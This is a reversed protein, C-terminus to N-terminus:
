AVNLTADFFALFFYFRHCKNLYVLFPKEYADHYYQCEKDVLDYLNLNLCSHRQSSLDM